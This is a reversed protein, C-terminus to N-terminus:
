SSKDAMRSAASAILCSIIISSFTVMGKSNFVEDGVSAVLQVMMYALGVCSIKVFFDSRRILSSFYVTPFLFVWTVGLIGLVGFRVMQTLWESHFLAGYAFDRAYQSSFTLLEPADKIATYGREGWGWIPNQSFYYFGLRYFTLRIGVSTDPAIGGSWPYEWIEHMLVDIRAHVTPSSSYISFSVGGIALLYVLVRLANVKYLIAFLLFMVIPLALWGSRSGTRISVYVGVLFGILKVWTNFNINKRSVDFFISALCVLAVSLNLFGYALPDIFSITFREGWANSPIVFTSSVWSSVIALPAIWDLARVYDIKRTYIYIFFPLAVIWRTQDLFERYVFVGRGIQSVAIAATYIMSLVCVGIVVPSRWPIGNMKNFCYAILIFICALISTNSIWHNISLFFLPAAFVLSYAIAEATRGLPSKHTAM